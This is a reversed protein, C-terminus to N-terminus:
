KGRAEFTVQGPAAESRRGDVVAGAEEISVTRVVEGAVVSEIKGETFVEAFLKGRTKGGGVYGILPIHEIGAVGEAARM